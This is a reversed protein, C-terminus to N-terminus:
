QGWIETLDAANLSPSIQVPSLPSFWMHEIAYANLYMLGVVRDYVDCDNGRLPRIDHSCGFVHCGAILRLVPISGSSRDTLEGNRPGAGHWRRARASPAKAQPRATPKSDPSSGIPRVEL